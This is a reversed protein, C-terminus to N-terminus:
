VLVKTLGILNDTFKYTFLIEDNQCSMMNSIRRYLFLLLLLFNVHLFSVIRSRNLDLIYALLLLMPQNLRETASYVCVRIAAGM